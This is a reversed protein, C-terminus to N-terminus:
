AYIIRDQEKFKVLLADSIHKKTIKRKTSNWEVLKEMKDDSLAELKGIDIEYGADMLYKIRAERNNPLTAKVYNDIADDPTIGMDVCLNVLYPYSYIVAKKGRAKTRADDKGLLSAKKKDTNDVIRFDSDATTIIGYISWLARGGQQKKQVSLLKSYSALEVPNADRWGIDEAPDYLRIHSILSSAHPTVEYVSTGINIDYLTHVHIDRGEKEGETYETTKWGKAKSRTVEIGLPKRGAGSGQNALEDSLNSIDTFPHKIRTYYREYEDFIALLLPTDANLISQEFLKVRTHFSLKNLKESLRTQDSSLEQIIVDEKDQNILSLFERIPTSKSVVFFQQYYSNASRNQESPKYIPYEKEMFVFGSSYNIYSPYGFKDLIKKKERLIIDMAMHLYLPEHGLTSLAFGYSNYLKEYIEDIITQVKTQSYLINYSSYDIDEPLDNSPFCLYDCDDYDCTAAGDYREPLINRERNLRCDFAIIKMMRLVRRIYIDKEESLKYNDLDIGIEEGDDARIFSAHKYIKVVVRADDPNSGEAELRAREQKILNEHSTARLFRSIAQHMGSPHWGASVLHGRVVNNVNLGDRAIPSVILVKIIDGNINEPSNFVSLISQMKSANSSTLIAFRPEIDSDVALRKTKSETYRKFGNEEFAIALMVVGGGSVYESYIFSCGRNEKEIRVISAFKCSLDDLTLRQEPGTRLRLYQRINLNGTFSTIAGKEYKVYKRFIETGSEGLDSDEISPFVFNAAQKAATMFADAGASARLYVEAQYPSMESKYVVTQSEIEKDVREVRPNEVNLESQVTTSLLPGNVSTTVPWDRMDGNVPVKMSHVVGEMREGMYETIVGTDIGRVFTFKGRFYPVLHEFTLDNLKVSLPIQLDVPLILNVLKSIEDTDNIAPTATAIIIKSRKVLHLVRWIQQYVNESDIEKQSVEEREARRVRRKELQKETPENRLNHAEDLIFLTGSYEKVIDDDSLTSLHSAFTRYTQFKYWKSLMSTIQHQQSKESANVDVPYISGGPSNFVIQRKIEDIVSHSRELIITRKIFSPHQQYFRAIKEFDFTKGTGTERISFVADYARMFRSFAEQHKFYSGAVRAEKATLQLERFEFKGALKSEIEDDNIPPYIPYFHEYRLDM